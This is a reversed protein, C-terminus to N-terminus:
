SCRSVGRNGAAHRHAAHVKFAVVLSVARHVAARVFRDVRVGHVIVAEPAGLKAAVERWAREALVESNVSQIDAARLDTLPPVNPM